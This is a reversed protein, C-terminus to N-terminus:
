HLGRKELLSKIDPKNGKFKLYMEMAEESGGKELINKRFADSIEKNYLGSVRFSQYADADLVAAWIYSY